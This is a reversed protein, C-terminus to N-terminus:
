EGDADRLGGERPKQQQAPSGSLSLLLEELNTPGQYSIGDVKFYRGNVLVPTSSRPYLIDLRLTSQFVFPKPEADNLSRLISKIQAPERLVIVSDSPAGKLRRLELSQVDETPVIERRCGGLVALLACLTAALRSM